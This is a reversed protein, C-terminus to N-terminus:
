PSNIAGTQILWIIELLALYLIGHCTWNYSESRTIDLHKTPQQQIISVETAFQPSHDSHERYIHLLCNIMSIFLVERPFLSSKDLIQRMLSLTIIKNIYLSM